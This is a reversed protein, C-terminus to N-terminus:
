DCRILSNNAPYIRIHIYGADNVLSAFIIFELAKESTGISKM